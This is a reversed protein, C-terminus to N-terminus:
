LGELEENLKDGVSSEVKLDYDDIRRMMKIAAQTIIDRMDYSNSIPASEVRRNKNRYYLTGSRTDASNKRCIVPVDEFESVKIVVYEKGDKDKPFVVSFMVHPDAYATIQDKMIDVQYTEKQSANVGQREFTADKVGIIIYGGDRINSLALIDKALSTVDWNCMAKFEIRQTEAGGELIEELEQTDM